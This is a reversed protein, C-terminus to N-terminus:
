KILLIADPCYTCVKYGQGLLYPIAWYGKGTYMTGDYVDDFCIAGKLDMKDLVNKACDLHMQYCGQNSINCNMHTKYKDKRIQSHLGHDFDFADLYLFDIKYSTIKLYDEGKMNIAEFKPNIQLNKKARETNEPDMDVTIFIMGNDNCFKCFQETSNQAPVIERTSGIEVLVKGKLDVKLNKMYQILLEHGHM